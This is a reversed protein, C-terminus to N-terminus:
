KEDRECKGHCGRSGIQGGFFIQIQRGDFGHDSSSLRLGLFAVDFDSDADHVFASIKKEKLFRVGGGEVGDLEGLSFSAVGGEVPTRRFVAGIGHFFTADLGERKWVEKGVLAAEGDLDVALGDAADGGAAGLRLDVFGDGLGSEVGEEFFLPRLIGERNFIHCARSSRPPLGARRM